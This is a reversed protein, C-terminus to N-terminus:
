FLSISPKNDPNLGRFIEKVYMKAVRLPTGRLSDDKLDLGLTNIIERFHRSIIKIKEEDSLVFADERLPTDCSTGIHEDGLVDELDELLLKNELSTFMMDKQEMLSKNM